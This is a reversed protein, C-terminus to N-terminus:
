NNQSAKIYEKSQHLLAHFEEHMEHWGNDRMWYIIDVIHPEKEPQDGKYAYELLPQMRSMMQYGLTLCDIHNSQLPLLYLLRNREKEWMQLVKRKAFSM